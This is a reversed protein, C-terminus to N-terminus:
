WAFYSTRTQSITIASAAQKSRQILASSRRVLHDAPVMEDLDFSYFFQGQGAERQGMM